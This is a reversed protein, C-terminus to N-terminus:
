TYTKITGKPHERFHTKKYNGPLRFKEYNTKVKASNQQIDHFESCFVLRFEPHFVPALVQVYTYPFMFPFMFQSCSSPVHVPVHVSVHVPVHVPVPVHVHVHVRVVQEHAVRSFNLIESNRLGRGAPIGHFKICNRCFNPFM